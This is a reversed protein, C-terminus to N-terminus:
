WPRRNGTVFLDFGTGRITGGSNNTVNGGQDLEAGESGAAPRGDITGYNTVTASNGTTSNITANITRSM